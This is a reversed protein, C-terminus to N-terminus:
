GMSLSSRFTDVSASYICPWTLKSYRVERWEAGMQLNTDEKRGGERREGGGRRRERREWRGDEKKSEGLMFKRTVDRCRVQEFLKKCHYTCISEEWLYGM